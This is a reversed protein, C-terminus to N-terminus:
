TSVMVTEAERERYPRRSVSVPFAQESWGM